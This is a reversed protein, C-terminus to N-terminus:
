RVGPSLRLEESDTPGAAIVSPPSNLGRTVPEEPHGARKTAVVTVAKVARHYREAYARNQYGTLDEARLAVAEELTASVFTTIPQPPIDAWRIAGPANVIARGWRFAALSKPVSAGNLGIAAEVARASVPLCGHQYAAGLLLMNAPM